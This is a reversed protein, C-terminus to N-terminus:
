RVPGPVGGEREEGQREGQRQERLGLAQLFPYRELWRAGCRMAAFERRLAFTNRIAAFERGKREAPAGIWQRLAADYTRFPHIAALVARPDDPEPKTKFPYHAEPRKEATGGPAADKPRGAEVGLHRAYAQAVMQSARWKGEVSYGAIHPTAIRAREATRDAFM